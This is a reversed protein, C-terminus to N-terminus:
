RTVRFSEEEGQKSIRFSEEKNDQDRIRFSAKQDERTRFSKNEADQRM